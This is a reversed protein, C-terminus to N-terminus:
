EIDQIEPEQGTLLFEVSTNLVKAIKLANDANPTTLKSMGKNIADLSVGSEYALKKRSMDNNLLLNSVREWFSM